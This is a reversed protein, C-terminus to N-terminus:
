TQGQRPEGAAALPKPGPEDGGRARRRLAEFPTALGQPLYIVVVVLLAGILMERYQDFGALWDPMTSVIVAGAM